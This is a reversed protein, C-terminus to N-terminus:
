LRRIADEILQHVGYADPLHNFDKNKCPKVSGCQYDVEVHVPDCYCYDGAYHDNSCGGRAFLDVVIPGGCKCTM